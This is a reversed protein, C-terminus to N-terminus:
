TQSTSGDKPYSNTKTLLKMLVGGLKIKSIHLLIYNEISTKLVLWIAFIMKEFIYKRTMGFVSINKGKVINFNKHGQSSMSKKCPLSSTLM